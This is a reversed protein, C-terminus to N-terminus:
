HKWIKGCRPCQYLPGLWAGCSCKGYQGAYPAGSSDYVVYKPKNNEEKLRQSRKEAEKRREEYIYQKAGDYTSSHQYKLTQIIDRLM